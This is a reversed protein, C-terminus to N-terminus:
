ANILKRTSMLRFAILQYEHFKTHAPGPLLFCSYMKPSIPIMNQVCDWIKLYGEHGFDTSVLSFCVYYNPTMFLFNQHFNKTDVPLMRHYKPKANALARLPFRCCSPEGFKCSIKMPPYAERPLFIAENQFFLIAAVPM